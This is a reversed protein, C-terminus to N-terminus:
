QNSVKIEEKPIQKVEEKMIAKFIEPSQAEKLADILGGVAKDRITGKKLGKKSLTKSLLTRFAVSNYMRPLVFGLAINRVYDESQGGQMGAVQGGVLSGGVSTLINTNRTAVAARAEIAKAAGLLNAYKFQAEKTGPALEDLRKGVASYLKHLAKNAENEGAQNTWKTLNGIKKQINWLEPATLNDINEKGVIEVQGTKLSPTSKNILDNIKNLYTQQTATDVNKLKFDDLNQGILDRIGTTKDVPAKNVVDEIIKGSENKATQVNKVLSSWTPSVKVYEAVALNPNKGFLYANKDPKILKAIMDSAIKEKGKGILSNIKKALGGLAPLAGSLAATTMVNENIEGEQAAAIGGYSGAEVAGKTLSSTAKQIIKPSAEFIKTGAVAAEAAKSGKTIKSAPVLFEMVQEGSYGLLQGLEVSQPDAGIDKALEGTEEKVFQGAQQWPESAKFDKPYGVVEERFQKTAGGTVFDGMSTGIDALGGLTQTAGEAAGGITGLTAGALNRGVDKSFEGAQYGFTSETGAEQQQPLIAKKREPSIKFWNVAFSRKGEDDLSNWFNQDAGEPVKTLDVSAKMMDLEDNFQKRKVAEGIKLSSTHYKQAIMDALQTEDQGSKIASMLKEKKQVEINPDDFYAQIIPNPM